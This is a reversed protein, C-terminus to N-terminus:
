LYSQELQDMQTHDITASGTAGTMALKAWALQGEYTVDPPEQVYFANVVPFFLAKGAPVTCSRSVSGSGFTGALFWVPGGQGVACKAGTTDLLPNTGKPIALAWQSWRASWQGYTM